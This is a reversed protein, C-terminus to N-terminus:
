LQDSSDIKHGFAEVYPKWFALDYRWWAHCGFPLDRNNDEFMRRPQAEMSFKRATDVDPISFWDFHRAAYRGWFKDENDTRYFDNFLYHFNNMFLYGFLQEPFHVLQGKWNMLRYYLWYDKTSKIRQFSNVVKQHSSVKRLSFGGNGVGIYRARPDNSIFGELWPAGIFDYNQDCWYELQDSFVFVDLQYILIYKTDAFSSYFQRSTLLRNYGTINAFYSPHYAQLYYTTNHTDFFRTIETLNLGTPYILVIPYPKLINIAQLLSIQELRSISSKYIPIVVSVLKAM